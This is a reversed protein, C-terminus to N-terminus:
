CLWMHYIYKIEKVKFQNSEYFKCAAVNMYQTSVNLRKIGGEFASKKAQSLLLSGIKQGRCTDDVAILGITAEEEKKLTLLGAYKEEMNTQCVWVEDAIRGSVSNEIWARYMSEFSADPFKKDLKFRSYEGAQLALCYISDDIVSADYLELLNMEPVSLVPSEIDYFYTVKDDVLFVSQDKLEQKIDSYIYILDYGEQIALEKIQSIVNDDLERIEIKGINLQFFDSDWSLKQIEVNQTTSCADTIAM